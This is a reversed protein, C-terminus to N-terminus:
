KKKLIVVTKKGEDRPMSEPVAVDELNSIFELIVRKNEDRRLIERGKMTLIVKVKYGKALFERAHKLKTEIDNSAINVGLGIEKIVQQNKSKSKANKKFHYLFKDYQAIRMIPPNIKMNIAILDLDMSEALKRAEAMSMVKSDIGDGVVRCNHQYKIEDNILFSIKATQPSKAM